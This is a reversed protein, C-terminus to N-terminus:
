RNFNNFNWFTISAGVIVLEIGTGACKAEALRLHVNKLTADLSM